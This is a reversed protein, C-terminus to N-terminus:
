WLWSNTFRIVTRNPPTWVEASFRLGNDGTAVRENLGRVSRWGGLGFQEGAIVPEGAWQGDTIARLMWNRPLFYSAQANFRFADWNTRARFRSLAYNIGENDDGVELNRSYSVNFQGNWSEALYSGGYGLTIPM